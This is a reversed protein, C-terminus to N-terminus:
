KIKLQQLSPKYILFPSAEKIWAAEEDQFKAKVKGWTTKHDFYDLILKDGAPCILRKKIMSLKMSAKDGQKM